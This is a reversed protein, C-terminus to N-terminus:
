SQKVKQKRECYPLTKKTLHHSKCTDCDGYRECKLRKCPCDTRKNDEM